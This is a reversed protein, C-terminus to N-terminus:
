PLHFCKHAQLGMHWTPHAKVFEFCRQVNEEYSRRGSVESDKTPSLYSLGVSSPDIPDQPQVYLHAPKLEEQLAVLEADKWPKELDGPLVVKLEHACHLLVSAGRKPSCTVLDAESFALNDITGNTEVAVRWGGARLASMLESDVQLGPEGGTLVVWCGEPSPWLARMRELLQGAALPEGKRFETDCWRACSAKGKNRHDPDGDWLNCGAFRVFVSLAGSRSGEGQVSLFVDRVTYLKSVARVPLGFYV